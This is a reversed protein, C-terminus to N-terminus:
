TISDLFERVVPVVGAPDLLLDSQRGPVLTIRWGLKELEQQRDRLTRAIHLTIGAPDVAHESGAFAMRPCKIRELAEAEAQHWDSVSEYFAIWQRYQDVNRLVVRASAPPDAVSLQVARLIDAFQGGLPPWGGCALATVRDSRAALQLGVIAGWTSGWWAFRDFGAATAVGLMDACVRDVTLDDPPIAASKGISPYDVLLVRYRDTLRDLFGHLVAATPDGFIEGYSAMAPFALFLPRGRGHVEYYVGTTPDQPV